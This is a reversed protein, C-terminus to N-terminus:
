FFPRFNPRSILPSFAWPISSLILLLGVTFWIAITKFKEKDTTKCKAKASGISILIVAVLMVLSHEMGFFRLEREQVAEKFNQFFHSTFPSIFYLWIGIMLQIHSLTATTHRITNDLQSFSVASFWGKYARFLAYVLSALVLWRFLSHFALLTPYM